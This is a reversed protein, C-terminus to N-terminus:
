LTLEASSALHLLLQPVLQLLTLPLAQLHLPAQLHAAALHRSHPCLELCEVSLQGCPVLLEQPM